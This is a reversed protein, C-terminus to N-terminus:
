DIVNCPTMCKTRFINNKYLKTCNWIMYWRYTVKNKRHKIIQKWLIICSRYGSRTGYWIINYLILCHQVLSYVTMITHYKWNIWVINYPIMMHGKTYITQNLYGKIFKLYGEHGTNKVTANTFFDFWFM